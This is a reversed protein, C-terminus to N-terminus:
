FLIITYYMATYYRALTLYSTFIEITSSGVKRFLCKRKADSGSHPQVITSFGVFIESMECGM